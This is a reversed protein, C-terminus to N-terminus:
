SQLWQLGQLIDRDDIALGAYVTVCGQRQDLIVGAASANFFPDVAFAVVLDRM